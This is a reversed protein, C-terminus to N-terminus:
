DTTDDAAPRTSVARRVAPAPVPPTCAAQAVSRVHAEAVGEGKDASPEAM